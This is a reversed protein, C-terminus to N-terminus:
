KLPPISRFPYRLSAVPPGAIEIRSLNASGLGREEALALFSDCKEFPETGRRALPDFGMIAAAVADANVANLGAVLVGASAPRAGPRAVGEGGAMSHVGDVFALHIPRAAAIDTVIRPVRWEAARPSNPDIEAAACRPPQRRGSHFTQGRGGRPEENPEDEGATDGYVSTPTIGFCNKLSLTIGTTVHEKLKALSVFVDCDAYSHNLLFSPYVLPAPVPFVAYRRAPGAINTNELEVRRGARILDMPEWGAEIM